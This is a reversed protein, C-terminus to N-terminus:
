QHPKVKRDGVRVNKGTQVNSGTHVNAAAEAASDDDDNDDSADDTDAATSRTGIGELRRLVTDDGDLLALAAKRMWWNDAIVFDYYTV